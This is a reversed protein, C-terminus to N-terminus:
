PLPFSIRSGQQAASLYAAELTEQARAAAKFDANSLQNKQARRIFDYASALHSNFHSGLSHKSPPYIEKLPTENELEAIAHTGSKWLGDDSNFYETTDDHAFDVRLTGKSGIIEIQMLNPNGSAVRSVEMSGASGNRLGLACLAWDDVDVSEMKASGASSPRETIFTRTECQIWSFDGLLLHLTDILHIGLDALAGGGSQNHKLRWSIPRAPDNYSSHYFRASFHRVEGILGAAMMARAQRVCPRYRFTFATHNTKGSQTAAEAMRRAEDLNMGIPKECYVALGRECASLVQRLHFVNPSCIDVADLPQSFFQEEDATVLDIGLQRVLAEDECPNARLVAAIKAQTAPKPFCYPISAYAQAHVKGIYGFGIM